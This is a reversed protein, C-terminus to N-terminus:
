WANDPEDGIVKVEGDEFRMKVRARNSRNAMSLFSLVRRRRSSPRNSQRLASSAIVPDRVVPCLLDGSTLLM